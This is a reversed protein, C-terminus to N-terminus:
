VYFYMNRVNMRWTSNLGLPTVRTFAAKHFSVAKLYLHIISLMSYCINRSSYYYINCKNM